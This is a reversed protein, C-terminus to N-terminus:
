GTIVGSDSVIEMCIMLFISFPGLVRYPLMEVRHSDQWVDGESSKLSAAPSSTWLSIHM